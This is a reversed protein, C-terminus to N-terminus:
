HDYIATCTETLTTIVKIENEKAGPIAPPLKLISSM